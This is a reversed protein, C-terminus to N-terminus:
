DYSSGCVNYVAATRCTNLRVFAADRSKHYTKMDWLNKGLFQLPTMTTYFATHDKVPITIFSITYGRQLDRKHIPKPTPSPNKFLPKRGGEKKVYRLIRTRLQRICVPDVGERLGVKQGIKGMSKMCCDAQELNRKQTEFAM